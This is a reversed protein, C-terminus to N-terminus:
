SFTRGSLTDMFSDLGHSHLCYVYQWADISSIEVMNCCYPCAFPVNATVHPPCMPTQLRSDQGLAWSSKGFATEPYTSPPFSDTVQTYHTTAKTGSLSPMYIDDPAAEITSVRAFSGVNSLEDLKPLPVRAQHPGSFDVSLKDRHRRRYWLWQRRQANAKALKECLAKNGAAAPFRDQVHHVDPGIEYNTFTSSHSFKARRSCKHIQVSLRLLSSLSENISLCLDRSETVVVVVGSEGAETTPVKDFESDEEDVLEEGFLSSSEEPWSLQEREAKVIPLVTEM